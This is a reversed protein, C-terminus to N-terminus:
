LSDLLLDRQGTGKCTACTVGKIKGTGNCKNCKVKKPKTTKKVIKDM